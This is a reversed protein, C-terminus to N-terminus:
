SWTVACFFRYGAGSVWGGANVPAAGKMALAVPGIRLHPEAPEQAKQGDDKKQTPKQTPTLKGTLTEADSLTLPIKGLDVADKGSNSTLQVDTAVGTGSFQELRPRRADKPFWPM